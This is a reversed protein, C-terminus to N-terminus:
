DVRRRCCLSGRRVWVGDIEVDMAEDLSNPGTKSVTQRFRLRLGNSQSIEGDWVLTGDVFGASSATGWAGTSAHFSRVLCGHEADYGWHNTVTIPSPNEPTAQEVCQLRYWRGGLARHMEFTSRLAHRAGLHSAEAVGDCDWLGVFFDLQRLLEPRPLDDTTRRSEKPRAELPHM